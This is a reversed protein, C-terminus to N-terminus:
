LLSCSEPAHFFFREWFPSPPPHLYEERMREVAHPTQVQKNMDRWETVTRNALHLLFLVKCIFLVMIAFLLYHVKELLETLYEKGEETDDIISISIKKLLGAQSICFTVLSLFGLITMEGFLSTIMPRMHKSSTEILYDQMAEFAMTLIILVSIICFTCVGLM